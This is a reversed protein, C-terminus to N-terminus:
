PQKGVQRGRGKMQPIAEVAAGQIVAIITRAHSEITSVDIKPKLKILYVKGLGDEEHQFSTPGITAGERIKLM